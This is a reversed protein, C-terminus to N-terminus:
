ASHDPFFIAAVFLDAFRRDSSLEVHQVSKAAIEAQLALEGQLLCMCAGMGSTNGAAKTKDRLEAPLLGIRIAHQVDLFNGFGGALYVQAIDNPALGAQAILLTIGAAIAAKANQVERIDRQTLIVPEGSMSLAAPVLLLARQGAYDIIRAALDAPLKEREDTIRGSSEIMGLDLLVAIAAVLGSGCIGLAKRKPDADSGASQADMWVDDGILRWVFQDNQYDIEDIAGEVGGIGCLISAGEFAPGAATSCALLGQPGALIIEGNTGIDILLASQISEPPRGAAMGPQMLQCALIGATIDAGIYSSISPLLQCLADHSVPLGLDQALLWRQRLSAPNFPARAISGAPLGAMLHLMTTNGAFVYHCVNELSLNRQTDAAAQSVLRGSLGAIAQIICRRMEERNQASAMSYDIRSIVDAGYAQQPNLVAAKALRRGNGLDYLWAALTSTGIDVAIGLPEPSEPSAFHLVEGREDGQETCFYFCPQYDTQALIGPLLAMLRFPVRLGTAAEFREDDPRQDSLSPAPLRVSGKYVRPAVDLDPMLGDDAIQAKVPQPLLVELIDEPELGAQRYLVPTLDTRCALAKGFGAIEVQCKHCTGKGGCPAPIHFGNQQLLVQLNQGEAASLAHKNRNDTVLLRM